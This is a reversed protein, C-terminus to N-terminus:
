GAKRPFYRMETELPHEEVPTFGLSEYLRRAPNGHLVGLDVTAARSDAEQLLGALLRRGLGRGQFEPAIQIQVVRWAAGNRTAKFLGAKRGDAWVIRADEFRHRIRVLHYADDSPAGARRLHETMTSKRLALLFPLDAETAPALTLAPSATMPPRCTAPARAGDARLDLKYFRRPPTALRLRRREQWALLTSHPWLEPRAVYGHKVPNAHVYGICAALDSEDRVTHEWYRRQWIGRERRASTSTRAAGPLARSFRTKIRRWRNPYDSDGQPLRWVMHLHDPMIVAALIAFPALRQEARICAKLLEARQVLLWTGRRRAAVTFFYAGGPVYHRRYDTM